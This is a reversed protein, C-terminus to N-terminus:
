VRKVAKNVRKGRGIQKYGHMIGVKQPREECRKNMAECQRLLLSSLQFSASTLRLATGFINYKRKLGANYNALCGTTRWVAEAHELDWGLSTVGGPCGAYDTHYVSHCPM